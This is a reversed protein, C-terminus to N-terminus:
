PLLKEKQNVLMLQIPEQIILIIVPKHNVILTIHLIRLLM